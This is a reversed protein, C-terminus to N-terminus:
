AKTQQYKQSVLKSTLAKLSSKMEVAINNLQIEEPDKVDEGFHLKQIISDIGAIVRSKQIREHAKQATQVLIDKLNDKAKLIEATTTDVAEKATDYKEKAQAVNKQLRTYTQKDYVSNPRRQFM